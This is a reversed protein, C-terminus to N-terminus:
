VAFIVDCHPIAARTPLNQQQTRLINLWRMSQIVASLLILFSLSIIVLYSIQHFPGILLNQHRVQRILFILLGASVLLKVLFFLNKKARIRFM